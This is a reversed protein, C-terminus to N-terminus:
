EPASSQGLRSLSPPPSPGIADCKQIPWKNLMTGTTPPCHKRWRLRDLRATAAFLEISTLAAAHSLPAIQKYFQSLRNRDRHLDLCLALHLARREPNQTHATYTRSPCVSTVSPVGVYM